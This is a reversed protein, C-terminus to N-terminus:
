EQLTDPLAQSAEGVHNNDKTAKAVEDQVQKIAMLENNLVNAQAVMRQKSLELDGIQACLNLYEQKVTEFDRM